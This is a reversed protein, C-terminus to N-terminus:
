CIYVKRLVESFKAYNQNIQFIPNQTLDLNPLEVTPWYTNTDRHSQVNMRDFLTPENILLFTKKTTKKTKLDSIIKSSM